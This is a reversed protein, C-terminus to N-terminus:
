DQILIYGRKVRKKQDFVQLMREWKEVSLFKYGEMLVRRVSQLEGKAGIMTSEKSKRLQKRLRIRWDERRGFGKGMVPQDYLVTINNLKNEIYKGYDPCNASRVARLGVM